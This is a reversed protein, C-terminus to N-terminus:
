ISSNKTEERKIERIREEELWQPLISKHVTYYYDTIFYDKTDMYSVYRSYNYAGLLIRVSDPVVEFVKAFHYITAEELTDKMLYIDGALPAAAYEIERKDQARGSFYIQAFFAALIFILAFMYIPTRTHALEPHETTEYRTKCDACKEVLYKGPIPFFPIWFVHFCPQYVRYEMNHSGCKSCTTKWNRITRIRIHRIGFFIYM